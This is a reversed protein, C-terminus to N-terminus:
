YRNTLFSSVLKGEQPDLGLGKAREVAVQVQERLSPVAGSRYKHTRVDDRLHELMGVLHIAANTARSRVAVSSSEMLELYTDLTDAFRTPCYYGVLLALRSIANVTERESLSGDRILDRIIDFSEDRGRAVVDLTEQGVESRKLSRMVADRLETNEM